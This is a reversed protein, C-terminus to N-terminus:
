STKGGHGTEWDKLPRNCDPCYFSKPAAIGAGGGFQMVRPEKFVFGCDLCKYTHDTQKEWNRIPTPIVSMVMPVM